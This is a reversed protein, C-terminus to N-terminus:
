VHLWHKDNDVLELIGGLLELVLILLGSAIVGFSVTLFPVKALWWLNPAELGYVIYQVPLAVLGVLGGAIAAVILVFRM